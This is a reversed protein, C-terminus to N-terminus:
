GGIGKMMDGLGGLGGMDKMKKMLETQLKRNADTFADKVGDAIKARDLEDDIQVGLLEHSGNLTVMVKNGSSGGVVVIDDMMEKMKKGQDRLDKLEKLKNFM